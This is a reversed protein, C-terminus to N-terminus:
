SMYVVYPLANVIGSDDPQNTRGQVAPNHTTSDHLLPVLTRRLATWQRGQQGIYQKVLHIFFKLLASM